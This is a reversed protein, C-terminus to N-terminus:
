PMTSQPFGTVGEDFPVVHSVCAYDISVSNHVLDPMNSREIIHEHFVVDSLRLHIQAM